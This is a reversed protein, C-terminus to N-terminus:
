YYNKGLVVATTTPKVVKMVFKEFPHVKVTKIGPPEHSSKSVVYGSPVFQCGSSLLNAVEEAVDPFTKFLLSSYTPRNSSSSSLSKAVDEYMNVIENKPVLIPKLFSCRDTRSTSQTPRHRGTPKSHSCSTCTTRWTSRTRVTNEVEAKVDFDECRIYGCRTTIM